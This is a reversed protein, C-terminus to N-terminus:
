KKMGIMGGSIFPILWIFWVLISFKQFNVRSNEDGRKIVVTAWGANFLMLIIGLVGTFSHFNLTLEGKALKMMLITGMADCLLGLWLLIVHWKKIKRQLRSSWIGITYLIFASLVSIIAGLLIKVM